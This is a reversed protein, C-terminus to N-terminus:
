RSQIHTWASQTRNQTPPMADTAIVRSSRLLAANHAAATPVASALCARRSSASAIIKSPCGRKNAAWAPPITSGLLEGPIALAQAIPTVAVIGLPNLAQAADAVLAARRRQRGRLHPLQVVEHQGPRVKCAVANAPPTARLAQPDLGLERDLHMLARHALQQAPQAQRAQLRPWVM